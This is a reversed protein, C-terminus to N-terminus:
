EDDDSALAPPGVVLHGGPLLKMRWTHTYHCVLEAIETPSVYCQPEAGAAECRGLRGARPILLQRRGIQDPSTALLGQLAHVLSPPLWDVRDSRPMTTSGAFRVDDTYVLTPATRFAVAEIIADNTELALVQLKSAVRPAEGELCVGDVACTEAEEAEAANSFTLVVEEILGDLEAAARWVASSANVLVLASREIGAQGEQFIKIADRIAFIDTAVESVESAQRYEQLPQYLQLADTMMACNAFPPSKNWHVARAVEEWRNRLMFISGDARADWDFHKQALRFRRTLLWSQVDQYTPTYLFQEYHVTETYVYRVTELLRRAGRLIDLEAGNTTLWLMDVKRVAHSSAWRDLSTSDVNVCDTSYGSVNVPRYFSHAVGSDAVHLCRSSGAPMDLGLASNYCLVRPWNTCISTLAGYGDHTPEFAHITAEPLVDMLWRVDAVSAGATVVVLPASTDLTHQLVEKHVKGMGLSSQHRGQAEPTLREYLTTLIHWGAPSFPFRQVAEELGAAANMMEHMVGSSRAAIGKELATQMLVTRDDTFMRLKEYCQDGLVSHHEACTKEVAPGWSGEVMELEFKGGEAGEPLPDDAENMDYVLREVRASRAMAVGLLAVLARTSTNGRVM